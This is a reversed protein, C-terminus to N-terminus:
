QETGVGDNVKNNDKDQSDNQEEKLISALCRDKKCLDKSVEIDLSATAKCNLHCELKNM